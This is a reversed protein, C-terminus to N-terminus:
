RHGGPPRRRRADRVRGAPRRSRTEPFRGPPRHRVAAWIGAALLTLGALFLALAPTTLSGNPGFWSPPLSDTEPVASGNPTPTPTPTPTQTPTPTPTPPAPAEVVADTDSAADNAPEPDAVDSAVQASNTQPGAALDAPVTYTVLVTASAGSAITGLACSFDPGPVIPACAGQTPTITGQSFGAPWTDTLVVGLADSPGANDVVMTYTYTVGDGATVTTVGDDKTLALDTEPEGLAFHGFTAM